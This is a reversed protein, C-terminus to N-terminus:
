HDNSVFCSYWAKQSVLKAMNEKQKEILNKREQNLSEARNENTQEKLWLDARQWSWAQEFQKLRDTWIPNGVEEKLKFYLKDNEIKGKIQKISDFDKQQNKFINLDSLAKEYEKTNRSNFASIIKNAIKNKQNKYPELFSIFQQGDASIQKVMKNSQALLMREKEETISDPTWYPLSINNQSLIPNIKELLSHVFLCEDLPECFDKFIHYNRKFHRVQIISKKIGHHEWFNNLRELARKAIIYKQFKKADAYSSISEGDIKIKKLNKLIM